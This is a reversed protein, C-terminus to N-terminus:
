PLFFLAVGALVLAVFVCRDPTILLPKNFYGRPLGSRREFRWQRLHDNDVHSSIYERMAVELRRHNRGDHAEVALEAPITVTKTM